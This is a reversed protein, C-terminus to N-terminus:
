YTPKEFECEATQNEGSGNWLIKSETITFFGKGYDDLVKVDSEDTGNDKVRTHLIKDYKIRDNELEGEIIWEDYEEASSSWVIDILLKDVTALNINMVARESYNDYYEGIFGKYIPNTAADIISDYIENFMNNFDEFKIEKNPDEVGFIYQKNGLIFRFARWGEAEQYALPEDIYDHFASKGNSFISSMDSTIDKCGRLYYNKGNLVFTYAATDNECMYFHENSIGMVGPKVLSVGAKLNIEALSSYEKFPNEVEEKKCGFLSLCALLILLTQVLKKM